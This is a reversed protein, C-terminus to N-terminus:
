RWSLKYRYCCTISVTDDGVSSLGNTEVIACCDSIELLVGIISASPVEFSFMGFVKFLLRGVLMPAARRLRRGLRSIFSESVIEGHIEGPNEM